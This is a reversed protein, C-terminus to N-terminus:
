IRTGALLPSIAMKMLARWIVPLSIGMRAFLDETKEPMQWYGTFVNDGEARYHRAMQWCEGTEDAIRVDVGPLTVGVTGAIRDGDYPNSTSMNTETM